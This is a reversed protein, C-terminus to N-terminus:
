ALVQGLGWGLSLDGEVGLGGPARCMKSGEALGGPHLDSMMLGASARPCGAVQLLQTLIGAGRDGLLQCLILVSAGSCGM